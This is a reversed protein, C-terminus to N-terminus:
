EFLIRGTQRCRQYSLTAALGLVVAYRNL